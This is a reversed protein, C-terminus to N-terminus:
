AEQHLGARRVIAAVERYVQQLHQQEEAPTLDRVAKGTAPDILLSSLPYGPVIPLSPQDTLRKRL